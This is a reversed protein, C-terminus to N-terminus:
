FKSATISPRANMIETGNVALGPEIKSILINLFKDGLEGTWELPPEDKGEEGSGLDFLLAGSFRVLGAKPFLPEDGLRGNGDVSCRPSVFIPFILKTIKIRSSNIKRNRM